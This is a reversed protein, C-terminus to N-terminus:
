EEEQSASTAKRRKPKLLLVDEAMTGKRIGQQRDQLASVEHPQNM